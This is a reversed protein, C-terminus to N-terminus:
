LTTVPVPHITEVLLVHVTQICKEVVAETAFINDLVSLEKIIQLPCSSKVVLVSSHVSHGAHRFLSEQPFLVTFLHQARELLGFRRM